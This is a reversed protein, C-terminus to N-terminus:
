PVEASAPAAGPAPDAPPAPHSPEAPTSARLNAIFAVVAAPGEAEIAQPVAVGDITLGSPETTM